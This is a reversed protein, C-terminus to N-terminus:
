VWFASDHPKANGYSCCTHKWLVAMEVEAVTKTRTEASVASGGVALRLKPYLEQSREWFDGKKEGKACRERRLQIARVGRTGGSCSVSASILLRREATKALRAAVATACVVGPRGVQATLLSVRM